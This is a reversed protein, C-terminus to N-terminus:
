SKIMATAVHSLEAEEEGGTRREQESEKGEEAGGGAERQGEGVGKPEIPRLGGKRRRCM